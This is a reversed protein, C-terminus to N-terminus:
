IQALLAEGGSIECVGRAVEPTFIKVTGDEVLMSYRLSRRVFGTAPVDLIMDIGTTFDSQADALFTIGAQEGGTSKAWAGMVWPDNVSVCVIEDVGKAKMQDAVRMFSPVHASDCTPTFAGPLGFVVVKRGSFLTEGVVQEPGNAGLTLFSTFPVKDGVSISM